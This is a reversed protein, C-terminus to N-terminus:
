WDVEGDDRAPTAKDWLARLRAQLKGRDARKPSEIPAAPTFRQNKRDFTLAIDKTEGHRSKLHKLVVRSSPAGDSKSDGSPALIFADDAGYELESTERFSALSLGDTYSSRGKADKSRALAAVVVIAVGADAFQRLYDMTENVAGRRDGHEGPTGVRQIYDLVILGADFADASQAVNALDFPPRVFALRDALDELAQMGREVAGAHESTIRRHRILTLDIDALRALQRDLLIPPSMEVNCVLAKLAPSLALADVLLQMTLATKGQGPAGGILTVLGPGIEIRALEGAGVSFLTPPKGSLVDDRWPDLLDATSQFRADSM